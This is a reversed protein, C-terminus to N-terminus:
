DTVDCVEMAEVYDYLKKMSDLAAASLDNIGDIGGIKSLDKNATAEEKEALQAITQLDRLFNSLKRLANGSYTSLQNAAPLGKAKEFISLLRLITKTTDIPSAALTCLCSM